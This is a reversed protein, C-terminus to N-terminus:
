RLSPVNWRNMKKQSNNCIEHFRAHTRPNHLKNESDLWNTWVYINGSGFIAVPDLGPLTESSNDTRMAPAMAAPIKTEESDHGFM